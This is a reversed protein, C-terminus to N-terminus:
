SKMSRPARRVRYGVFLRHKSNVQKPRHKESSMHPPPPHLLRSCALLFDSSPREPMALVGQQLARAFQAYFPALSMVHRTVGPTHKGLKERPDALCCCVPVFFLILLATAPWSHDTM